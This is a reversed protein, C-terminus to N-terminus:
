YAIGSYPCRAHIDSENCPTTNPGPMCDFWEPCSPDQECGCGCQNFFYTTNGTCVFDMAACSAPSTGVYNRRHTENAPDCACAMETCESVGSQVCTCTNCGDIAAYKDGVSYIQGNYRCFTPAGADLSESWCGGVCLYKNMTEGETCPCCGCPNTCGTSCFPPAACGLNSCDIVGGDIKGTAGGTGGLGSGGKGGSSFGGAGAASRGGIVYSGGRGANAVIGGAGDISSGGQTEEWCGGVCVYTKPTIGGFQTKTEGDFCPCCGCPAQCTYSCLPAEMCSVNSCDIRDGDTERSCGLVLVAALVVKLCGACRKKM